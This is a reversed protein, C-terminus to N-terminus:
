WGGCGRARRTVHARKVTMGRTVFDEFARTSYGRDAGCAGIEFEGADAAGPSIAASALALVLVRWREVVARTSVNVGGPTAREHDTSSAADDVPESIASESGSDGFVLQGSRALDALAVVLRRRRRRLEMLGQSRVAAYVYDELDRVEAKTRVISLWAAQYVDELDADALSPFWRRARRLVLRKLRQYAQGSCDDGRREAM